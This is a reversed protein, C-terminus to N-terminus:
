ELNLNKHNEKTGGDLYWSLVKILDHGLRGFGKRNMM